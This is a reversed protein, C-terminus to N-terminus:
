EDIVCLSISNDGKQKMRIYRINKKNLHLNRHNQRTILVLNEINNNSRNKDMHHVIYNSPIQVKLLREVYKRPYRQKITEDDLSLLYNATQNKYKINHALNCCTYSCFKKRSYNTLFERNCFAYYHLQCGKRVM